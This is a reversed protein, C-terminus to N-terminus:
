HEVVVSRSQVYGGASVRVFYIGSPVGSVDLSVGGQLSVSRADAERGLADFLECHLAAASNGGAMRIEVADGAPNPVIGDISFPIGRMVDQMLPEGCTYVYTFSAGSDVISAICDDALSLTNTFGVNSLTLPTFGSDSLFVRFTITGLTDAHNMSGSQSGASFHLSQRQATGASGTMTVGNSQEYTLLDDNHTIDFQLSSIAGTPVTGMLLVYCIVTDGDTATDSPSLDLVLRAPPIISATLPIRLPTGRVGSDAFFTLIGNMGASDATLHITVTASSDPPLIIPYTANVAYTGNSVGGSDITLTDCGTNSLVLTTDRSQCAYLAGFDRLATDASLTKTGGLGTGALVITTDRGPDNQINRSHFRLSASQAGKVRPAFHFQFVHSAGPLLLSDSANPVLSFTTDGAFVLNSIVLTDCGTNSITDSVTTDGSCFSFSGAQLFTRPVDLVGLGQVGTGSLSIVPTETLGMSVVNLMVQGTFTGSDPPVFRYSFTVSDGPLVVIPLSDNGAHGITWTFGAGTLEVSTITDPACGSNTFTLTTDGSGNCTSLAGFNLLSTPSILHPATGLAAFSITIITDFLEGSGIYAGKIEVQVSDNAVTDQPDFQFPLTNHYSSRITDPLLSEFTIRNTLPSFVNVKTIVLSQCPDISLSGSERVPSCTGVLQGPAIIQATAPTTVIFTETDAWDACRWSNQFNVKLISVHPGNHPLYNLWLTDNDNSQLLFNNPIPIYSEHLSDSIISGEISISDISQGQMPIPILLRGDCTTTIRTTDPSPFIGSPIAYGLKGDGGDETLWVGGGGDFAVVTGGDCSPVVCFRTDPGGQPGGVSDWTQGEDTSRYMGTYFVSYNQVYIANADGEIDGTPYENVLSPIEGGRKWHQGTDMSYWCIPSVTVQTDQGPYYGSDPLLPYVLFIGTSRQVYIGYADYAFPLVSWSKGANTTLYTQDYLYNLPGGLNLTYAGSIMCVSDNLPAIGGVSTYLKGANFKVCNCQSSDLAVWTNGSDTTQYIGPTYPPATDSFSYGSGFSFWGNARDRMSISTIRGSDTQLIPPLSIQKWNNGGDTTRFLEVKGGAYNPGKFTAVLGSQTDFFYGCSPYGALSGIKKWHQAFVPNSLIGTLAVWFFIRWNSKMIIFFVTCPKGQVTHM